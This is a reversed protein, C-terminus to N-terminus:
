WEEPGRQSKRGKKAITERVILTENIIFRKISYEDTLRSQYESNKWDVTKLDCQKSEPQELLCMVSQYM